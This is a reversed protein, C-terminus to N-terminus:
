SELMSSARKLLGIDLITWKGKGDVSIRKLLAQIQAQVVPHNRPIGTSVLLQLLPRDESKVFAIDNLLPSANMGYNARSVYRAILAPTAACFVDSWNLGYEAGYM